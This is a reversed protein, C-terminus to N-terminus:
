VELDKFAIKRYVPVKECLEDCPVGDWYGGKPIVFDIRDRSEPHIIYDGAKMIENIGIRYVINDDIYCDGNKRIELIM